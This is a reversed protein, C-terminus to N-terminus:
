PDGREIAPGDSTEDSGRKSPPRGPGSPGAFAQALSLWTTAGPGVASLDTDAPHRRQTVVLCFAEASGVVREASGPDGWTWVSGGPAALQVFPAPEPVELGRNTFAFGFTRVGLHAIHRLRDTPSTRRGLADAIDQGHAWTEMLRATASSAVSMPPGYWPLRTAPDLPALTALLESRSRRFWALLEAPPVSRLESAISSAFDSGRALLVEAQRTFREPDTAALSAADDFYALHSVQDAVTWGVAPTPLHWRDPALDDLLHDVAVSEAELDALLAPLDVPM